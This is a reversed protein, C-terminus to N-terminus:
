GSVRNYVQQLWDRSARMGALYEERNSITSYFLLYLRDLICSGYVFGKDILESIEKGDSELVSTYGRASSTAVLSSACVAYHDGQKFRSLSLIALREADVLLLIGCKVECCAESGAEKPYEWMALPLFKTREDFGTGELSPMADDATVFTGRGTMVQGNLLKALPKFDDLYKLNPKIQRLVERLIECWEKTSIKGRSVKARGTVFDVLNISSDM